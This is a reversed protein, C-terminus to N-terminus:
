APRHRPSVPCPFYYPPRAFRSPHPLVRRLRRSERLLPYLVTRVVNTGTLPGHCRRHIAAETREGLRRNAGLLSQFRSLPSRRVSSTVPSHSSSQSSTM